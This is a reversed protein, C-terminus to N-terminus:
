VEEDPLSQNSGYKFSTIEIGTSHVILMTWENDMSDSSDIM